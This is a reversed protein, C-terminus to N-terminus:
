VSALCKFKKAIELDDFVTIHDMMGMYRDGDQIELASIVIYLSGTFQLLLDQPYYVRTEPKGIEECWSWYVEAAEINKNLVNRWRSSCSAELSRSSTLIASMKELKLSVGYQAFEWDWTIAVSEDTDLKLELGQDLSDFRADDFFHYEGDGYDIEHYVFGTVKKGVLCHVREEYEDRTM